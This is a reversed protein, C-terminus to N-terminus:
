RTKYVTSRTFDTFYGVPVGVVGGFAAGLAATDARNLVQLCFTNPTCSRPGSAVGIIAGIGAGVAMGALLSRGRHAQKISKIEPRQFVSDAGGGCHLTDAEVSQVGCSLHRTTTNLYVRAGHPLREVQQWDPSPEPASPLAQQPVASIPALLVLWVAIAEARM